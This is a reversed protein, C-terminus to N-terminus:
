PRASRAPAMGPEIAEIADASEGLMTRRGTGTLDRGLIDVLARSVDVALPGTTRGGSGGFEVLLAFAVRPTQAFDPDGNPLKRQLYGGFWAHSHREGDEPPGEPWRSAIEVDKEILTMGSYDLRFREIARDRAGAPVIAELKTGDGDLYPVRYATPWPYATASGTKGCLVYDPDELRAFRYATGAPENVVGYIGRRVALWQESTVPLRWRPKPEGERFLTAQQFHGDAYTAMLNAVHVPTMALEGQGIAFNRAHGVTVPTGKEDVLWGPTPNIGRSDGDLEVGSPRGIGVMDYANTLAPVGLQEGLTYMFINCSGM